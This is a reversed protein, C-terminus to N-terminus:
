LRMKKLRGPLQRHVAMRDHEPLRGGYYAAQYDEALLRLRDPIDGAFAEARVAGNQGAHLGAIVKEAFEGPTECKLRPLGNKKAWAQVRWFLWFVELRFYRPFRMRWRRALAKLRAKLWELLLSLPPSQRKVGSSPGPAKLPRFHKLFLAIAATGAAAALVTLLGVIWEPPIEPLAEEGGPPLEPLTEGPPFELEGPEPEPLLSLLLEFLRLAALWIKVLAEWVALAAARLGGRVAPLLLTLSVLGIGAALLAIVGPFWGARGATRVEARDRPDGDGSGDLTLTMGTLTAILAPLFMLHLTDAPWGKAAYALLFIPYLIVNGEFRGLMNMRGPRRFIFSASRVFVFVVAVAASWKFMWVSDAAIERGNLFLLLALVPAGALMLIAYHVRSALLACLGYGAIAAALWWRLDAAPGQSWRNDSFLVIASYLWISESYLVIFSKVANRM